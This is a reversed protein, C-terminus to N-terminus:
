SHHQAYRNALKILWAVGELIAILLACTIEILMQLFWLVAIVSGCVIGPLFVYLFLLLGFVEM